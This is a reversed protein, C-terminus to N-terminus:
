GGGVAHVIELRDGAALPTEGYAARPLIDGNREVIAMGDSLQKSALFDHVTWGTPVTVEKGNITLALDNTTGHEGGRAADRRTTMDMTTYEELADDVEHRLRRAATEPDPAAAIASIVAVGAAGARITAAVNTPDVGGIALVPRRAAAVIRALGSLGLPNQGPHSATPFVHGALLYDAGTSAAAAEPSHVSRGVLAAPGLSRRAAEIAATGTREPLHLGVGLDAALAVDGNVLVRAARGVRERVALVAERVDAPEAGPMRIQIADVGGAVAAAALEPPPLASEGSGIM